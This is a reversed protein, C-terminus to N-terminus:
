RIDPVATALEGPSVAGIGTASGAVARRYYDVQGLHYSFHTATHLLFDATNIRKGAVAMPYERALVADTLRPLITEVDRRAAEVEELLGARPVDRRSFEADRDRIYGTGGLVAGVFHRINGALHLALTDSFRTSTKDGGVQSFGSVGYPDRFVLYHTVGNVAGWSLIVSKVGYAAKVSPAASPTPLKGTGGSGGTCGALTMAMIGLLMFVAWKKMMPNM